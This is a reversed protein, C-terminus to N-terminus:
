AAKPNQSGEIANPHPSEGVQLWLAVQSGQMTNPHPSEGLQLWLAVHLIVFCATVILSVCMTHRSSGIISSIISLLLIVNSYLDDCAVM